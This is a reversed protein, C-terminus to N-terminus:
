KGLWVRSKCLGREIAGRKRVQLPTTPVKRSLVGELLERAAEAGFAAAPPALAFRLRKASIVALAPLEDRRVGLAGRLSRQNAADLRVFSVVGPQPLPPDFLPPYYRSTVSHHHCRITHPHFHHHNPQWNLITPAAALNM